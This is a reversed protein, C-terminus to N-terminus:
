EGETRASSAHSSTRGSGTLSVAPSTPIAAGAARGAASRSQGERRHDRWVLLATGLLGAVLLGTDERTGLTLAATFGVLSWLLPIVPVYRPVPADTWLLLGFTFITIPCPAVGFVPSEPYRHGFALGLLPYVVMAYVIFLGGTVGYVDGRPRFSLRGRMGAWLLVMAQLLFFAGFGLAAPNVQRFFGLHYVAGAWLWYLALVGAIAPAAYRVPRVALVVATVGLAYAVLQAPWIAQNYREFVGLFQEITFPLNM